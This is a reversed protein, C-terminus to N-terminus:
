ILLEIDVRLFYNKPMGIHRTNFEKKPITLKPTKKIGARDFAAAIRKEKYM